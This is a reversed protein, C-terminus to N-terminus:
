LRKLVINPFQKKVKLIRSKFGILSLELTEKKKMAIIFYGNKDTKRSTARQKHLVLVDPLSNGNEDVVHGRIIFVDNQKLTPSSSNNNVRPIQNQSYGISFILFALISMLKLSKKRNNKYNPNTMFFYQIYKTTKIKLYNLDLTKQLVM